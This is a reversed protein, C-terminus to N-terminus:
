NPYLEVIPHKLYYQKLFLEIANKAQSNPAIIVFLDQEDFCLYDAGKAFVIRFENEKRFDYGDPYRDYRSLYELKTREAARTLKMIPEKFSAFLTAPKRYNIIEQELESKEPQSLNNLGYNWKKIAEDHWVSSETYYHVPKAGHRKLFHDTFVLGFRGYETLHTSARLQNFSINIFCIMLVDMPLYTISTADPLNKFWNPDEKPHFTVSAVGDGTVKFMEPPIRKAGKQPFAPIFEKCKSILLRKEKLILNIVSETQEEIKDQKGLMGFAFHIFM